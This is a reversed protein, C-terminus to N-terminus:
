NKEQRVHSPRNCRRQHIVNSWRCCVFLPITSGSEKSGATSTGNPGQEAPPIFTSPVVALLVAVPLLIFFFLIM